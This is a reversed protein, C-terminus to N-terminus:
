LYPCTSPLCRAYARRSLSSRKGTKTTAKHDRHQRWGAGPLFGQVNQPVPYAPLVVRPRHAPEHDVVAGFRANHGAHWVIPADLNDPGFRKPLAPLIGLVAVHDCPEVRYVAALHHNELVVVCVQRTI